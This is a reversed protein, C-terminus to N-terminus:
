QMWFLKEMASTLMGRIEQQLWGKSTTTEFTIMLGLARRLRAVVEDSHLWPKTKLDLVDKVEYWFLYMATRWRRLKLTKKMKSCMISTKVKATRLEHLAAGILEKYRLSYRTLLRDNAKERRRVYAAMRAGFVNTSRADGRMRRRRKSSYSSLAALHVSFRWRRYEYIRRYELIESCYKFDVPGRMAVFSGKVKPLKPM